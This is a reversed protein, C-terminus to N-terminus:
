MDPIASLGVATGLALPTLGYLSAMGCCTILSTRVDVCATQIARQRLLSSKDDLDDWLGGVGVRQGLLNMSRVLSDFAERVVRGTSSSGAVRRRNLPLSAIRLAMPASAHSDNGALQRLLQMTRPFTVIFSGTRADCIMQFLISKRLSSGTDVKVGHYRTTAAVAICGREVSLHIWSPLFATGDSLPQQLAQITAQCKFDACLKTAALLVDSASLAAPNTAAEILDFITSQILLRQQGSVSMMSAGGSLSVIIGLNSVARISLTLQSTPEELASSRQHPVPYSEVASASKDDTHCSHTLDGVSPPGYSDDVKWFSISMHGDGSDMFRAPSVSLTAGDTAAWVGRRLAQAQASLLELQWSLLFMHAVQFLANIPRSPPLSAQVAATSKLHIVNKTHDDSVDNDIETTAHIAVATSGFQSFEATTSEQNARMEERRMATAAIRHLDYRQRNSTELQHNFEGTKAQVNVQVSILTWANNQSPFVTLLAEIPYQAMSSTDTSNTISSLVHKPKGVTFKVIGGKLSLKWLPPQFSKNVLQQRRMWGVEGTVLKDRVILQWRQDTELKSWSSEISSDYRDTHLLLDRPLDYWRGHLLVDLAGYVDHAATRAPFLQAHFFYLADQAEDAQVWATRTHQLAKTSIQVIAGFNTCAAAASLAAVRQLCKANQSLRWSLEHRRQAFSLNTMREKKHQFSTPVIAQLESQEEDDMNTGGAHDTDNQQSLQQKAKSGGGATTTYVDLEGHAMNYLDLYLADTAALLVQYLSATQLSGDEPNLSLEMRRPPPEQQDRHSMENNSAFATNSTSFM